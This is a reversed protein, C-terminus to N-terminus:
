IKAYLNDIFFRLFESVQNKEKAELAIGKQPYAVARLVKEVQDLAADRELGQYAQELARDLAVRLDLVHREAPPLLTLAEPGRPSSPQYEFGIFRHSRYAELLRYLNNLASVHRPPGGANEISKRVNSALVRASGRADNEDHAAMIPM